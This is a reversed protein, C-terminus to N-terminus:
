GRRGLGRSNQQATLLEVLQDTVGPLAHRRIVYDRADSAITGKVWLDRLHQAMRDLDGHFCEGAQSDQLFREGVELSAIPTRSLAAQLFVNPFGELQSTSVLAAARAFVGPMQEFSVQDLIGVNSPRERRMRAELGPDSRNMIMLFNAEPLRRALELCLQPRKHIGEARGIWLLYRQFGAAQEVPIPAALGSDWQEVDIPNPLLVAERGFRARLTQQQAETQAVILDADHLISRGVRATTGYPDREQDGEVFLPDLDGDSGLFLAAPRDIAHASAIVAASHTQVGFTCYIDADIATLRPDVGVYRPKGRRLFRDVAVTPLQWVLRPSWQRVRLWPFRRRKELAQGVAQWVPYLRDILLAVHVGHWMDQRLPQHHRVVFRVDFGTRSALGRALLWSRTEVGGIPGRVRADIAPLANLAVFCVRLPTAAADRM